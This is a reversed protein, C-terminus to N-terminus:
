WDQNDITGAAKEREHNALIEDILQSGQESSFFRDWEQDALWSALQDAVQEQQEPPLKEITAVLARVRETLM